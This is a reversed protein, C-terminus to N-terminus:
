SRLNGGFGGGSKRLTRKVPTTQPCGSRWCPMVGAAPLIAGPDTQQRGILCMAPHAGDGPKHEPIQLVRDSLAKVRNTFTMM